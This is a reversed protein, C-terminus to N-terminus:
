SMSNIPNGQSWQSFGLYRSYNFLLNLKVYVALVDYYIFIFVSKFFIKEENLYILKFKQGSNPIKGWENLILIAWLSPDEYSM